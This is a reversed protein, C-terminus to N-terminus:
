TFTYLSESYDCCFMVELEVGKEGKQIQVCKVILMINDVRERPIQFAKRKKQFLSLTAKKKGKEMAGCSMERKLLDKVYARLM